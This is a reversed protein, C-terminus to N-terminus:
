QENLFSTRGFSIPFLLFALVSWLKPGKELQSHCGFGNWNCEARMRNSGIFYCHRCELTVLVYIVILQPGVINLVINQTRLCFRVANLPIVILLTLPGSEDSFSSICSFLGRFIESGRKVCGSMKLFEIEPWNSDSHTESQLILGEGHTAWKSFLMTPPVGSLTLQTKPPM